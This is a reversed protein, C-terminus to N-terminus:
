GGHSSNKLKPTTDQNKKTFVGIRIKYSKSLKPKVISNSLKKTLPSKLYVNSTSM